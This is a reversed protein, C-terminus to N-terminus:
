HLSELLARATAAQDAWRQSLSAAFATFGDQDLGEPLEAAPINLARAAREQDSLGERNAYTEGREEEYRRAQGSYFYWGNAVAHMPVGNPDALHVTLFPELEPAFRRIEDHLMGSADPERGNRYQARGDWTGHPEYLEGTISFADSLGRPDDERLELQIRMFSRGRKREITKTITTM